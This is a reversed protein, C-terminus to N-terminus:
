GGIESMVGYVFNSNGHPCEAAFAYYFAPLLVVLLCFIFRVLAICGLDELCLYRKYGIQLVTNLWSLLMKSLLVSYSHIYRVSEIDDKPDKAKICGCGFKQFVFDASGAETVLKTQCGCKAM